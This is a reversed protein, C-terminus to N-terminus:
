AAEQEAKGALKLLEAPLRLELNALGNLIDSLQSSSWLVPAPVHAHTVQENFVRVERALVQAKELVARLPELAKKADNLEGQLAEAKSVIEAALSRAALREAHQRIPVILKALTEAQRQCAQAREAHLEVIVTQEIRARIADQPDLYALNGRAQVQAQQAQTVRLAEQRAQTEYARKRRELDHMLNSLAVSDNAKALRTAEALIESENVREIAEM